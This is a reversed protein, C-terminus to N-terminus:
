RGAACGRTTGSSSRPSSRTWTPMCSRRTRGPGASGCSCINADIARFHSTSRSVEPPDTRRRAATPASAGPTARPISSPSSAAATTPRPWRACCRDLRRRDGPRRHGRRRRSSLYATGTGPGGAAGSWRGGAPESGFMIGGGDPWCCNPTRSRGTRRRRPARRVRHIRGRRGSVDPRPRPTGTPCPPGPGPSPKRRNDDHCGSIDRPGRRRPSIHGGLRLRDPTLRRASARVIRAVGARDVPGAHLGAFERWEATLHSQDAYGCDAAITSLAPGRDVLMSRSRQFRTM